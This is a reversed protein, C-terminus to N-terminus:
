NITKNIQTRTNRENEEEGGEIRQRKTMLLLSFFRALNMAMKRRRDERKVSCKDM